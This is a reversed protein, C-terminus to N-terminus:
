PMRPMSRQEPQDLALQALLIEDSISVLYVPRSPDRHALLMKEAPDVPTSIKLFFILIWVATM